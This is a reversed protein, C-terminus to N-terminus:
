PSKIEFFIDRKVIRSSQIKKRKKMAIPLSKLFFYFGKLFSIFLFINKRQFSQKISKLFIFVTHSFLTIVMNFFTFNKVITYLHAYFMEKFKLSYKLNDQREEMGIHKQLTEAYLYNKYGFISLKIGLDNDDGGFALYDDYGGVKKWISKQIFLALGNPFAIEINNLEKIASLKLPRNMTIYSIRNVFGGYGKSFDEGANFYALSLVGANDLFKYSDLLKHLIKKESIECDNDLLLIYEGEAKEIAYNCAFNKERLKPSQVLKIGRHSKIFELSGDTSGNDVVIFEYNSYNFELILPITKKLYKLGNYNLMVVSIKPTKNTKSKSM